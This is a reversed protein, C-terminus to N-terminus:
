AGCWGNSTHTEKCTDMCSKGVTDYTPEKIEVEGGLTPDLAFGTLDQSTRGVNEDDAPTAVCGVVVLLISSLALIRKNPTMMTRLALANTTGGLLSGFCQLGLETESRARSGSMRARPRKELVAKPGRLM